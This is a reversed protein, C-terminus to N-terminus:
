NNNVSLWKVKETNRFSSQLYFLQGVSSLLDASIPPVKIIRNENIKDSRLGNSNIQNQM